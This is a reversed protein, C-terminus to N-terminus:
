EITQTAKDEFHKEVAEKKIREQLQSITQLNEKNESLLLRMKTESQMAKVEVSLLAREAYSESKVLEKVQDILDWMKLDHQFKIKDTLEIMREIDSRLRRESDNLVLEKDDSNGWLPMRRM